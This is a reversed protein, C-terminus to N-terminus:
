SDLLEWEPDPEWPRQINDGNTFVLHENDLWKEALMIYAGLWNIHMYRKYVIPKRATAVYWQSYNQKMFLLPEQKMEKAQKIAKDWWGVFVNSKSTFIKQNLGMDRYHKVEILFLNHKEEIYLDGKIKGSGSGPTQIFPLGTTRKLLSAVQQEARKGKQRSNVM